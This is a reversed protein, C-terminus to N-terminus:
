SSNACSNSRARDPTRLLASGSGSDRSVADGMRGRGRALNKSPPSRVTGNIENQPGGATGNVAAGHVTPLETLRTGPSHATGDNQKPVWEAWEHRPVLSPTIGQDYGRERTDISRWTLAYLCPGMPRKGGQRTKLLLRHELLVRLAKVLQEKSRLGYRRVTDWTIAIDGNNKGSYQAAAILTLVAYPQLTTFAASEMVECPIM